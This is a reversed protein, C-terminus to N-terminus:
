MENIKGNDSSIQLLSKTFRPIRWSKTQNKQSLSTYNNLEKDNLVPPKVIGDFTSRKKSSICPLRM